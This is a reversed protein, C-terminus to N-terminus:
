FIEIHCMGNVAYIVGILPKYDSGRFPMLLCHLNSIVHIPIVVNASNQFLIYYKEQSSNWKLEANPLYKTIFKELEKMLLGHGIAKM